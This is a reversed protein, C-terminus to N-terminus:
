PPAVGDLWDDAVGLAVTQELRIVEGARGAVRDVGHEDGGTVVHAEEEGPEDRKPTDQDRPMQQFGLRPM